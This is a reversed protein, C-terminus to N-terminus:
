MTAACFFNNLKKYTPHQHVCCSSSLLQCGPGLSSQELHHGARRGGGALGLGKPRPNLGAFEGRGGYVNSLRGLHSEFGYDGAGSLSVEGM